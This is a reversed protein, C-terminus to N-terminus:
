GRPRVGAAPGMLHPPTVGKHKLYSARIDPDAVLATMQADEIATRAERRMLEYLLAAKARLLRNPLDIM